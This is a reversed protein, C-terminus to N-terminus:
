SAQIALSSDLFSNFTNINIIHIIYLTIIFGFLFQFISLVFYVRGAVSYKIFGFLFQFVKLCVSLPLLYYDGIFGFLFQFFEIGVM